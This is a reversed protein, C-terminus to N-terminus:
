REELHRLHRSRFLVAAGRGGDLDLYMHVPRVLGVGGLAHPSRQEGALAGDQQNRAAAAHRRDQRSRLSSRDRSRSPTVVQALQRHQPGGAVFLHAM